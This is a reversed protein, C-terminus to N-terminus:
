KVKVVNQGGTKVTFSLQIQQVKNQWYTYQYTGPNLALTFPFAPEDDKKSDFERISSFDDGKIELRSKGTCTPCEFRVTETGAQPPKPSQSDDNVGLSDLVRNTLTKREEASFKAVNFTRNYRLKQGNTQEGSIDISLTKGDDNISKSLHTYAPKATQQALATTAIGLGFLILLTKM